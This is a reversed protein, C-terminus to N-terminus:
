SRFLHIEHTKNPTAVEAYIWLEGDVMLWSSYRFTAFEDNPTPSMLLPSDPTLDHITHLDFTFALGTMVNYVPDYWSTKSGEYVFLYGIGIPVVSSPRIFFDHWGALPMIPEYPNGVPSWTEGDPSSFHFIRENRRIYGIVYCHYAGDAFVIVPDKYETPAQDREYTLARPQIVPKATTANFLEPSDVDDFKIISWPGEKWPGCAYLKFRKTAPDIVLCPREFGPIPVAERPIKLVPDFTIGDASKLIRIEYGRLGRDGEGRRMRAALWFTGADDRVVSPAGAWWEPAITDPKLIVTSNQTAREFSTRLETAIEPAALGEHPAQASAMAGILVALCFSCIRM